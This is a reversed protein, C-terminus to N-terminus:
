FIVRITTELNDELERFLNDTFLHASENFNECIYTLVKEREYIGYLLYLNYFDDNYKSCTYENDFICNQDQAYNRFSAYTNFLILHVYYEEFKKYQEVACLLGLM